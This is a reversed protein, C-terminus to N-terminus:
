QNKILNLLITSKLKERKWCLIKLLPHSYKSKQSFEFYCDGDTTYFQDYTIQPEFLLPERLPNPNQSQAFTIERWYDGLQHRLTQSVPLLPLATKYITFTRSLFGQYFFITDVRHEKSILKLGISDLLFKFNPAKHLETQFVLKENSHGFELSRTLLTTILIIMLIIQHFCAILCKSVLFSITIEKIIISLKM